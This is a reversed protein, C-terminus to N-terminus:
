VGAVSCGVLGRAKGQGAKGERRGVTKGALTFLVLVCLPRLHTKVTCHPQTSPSSFFTCRKKGEYGECEERRGESEGESRM